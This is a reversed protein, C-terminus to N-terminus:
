LKRVGCITGKSSNPFEPDDEPPASPFEQPLKIVFEYSETPSLLMPQAEDKVEEKEEEEAKKPPYVLIKQEDLGFVQSPINFNVNNLTVAKSIMNLMYFM